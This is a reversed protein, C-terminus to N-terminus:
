LIIIPVRTNYVLTLNNPVSERALTDGLHTHCNRFSPFIVGRKTPETARGFGVEKTLPNLWGEVFGERTFVWGGWCKM